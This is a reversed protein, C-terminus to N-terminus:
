PSETFSQSQICTAISAVGEVIRPGLRSVTDASITFLRQSRVAPVSPYRSWFRIMSKHDTSDPQDEPEIIIDPAAAILEESGIPPYEYITPGIANIGGALRILEDIFTATGAVRLPERQVVWLIKPRRNAPASSITMLLHQIDHILARGQEIRQTASAIADIASDLQELTNMPLTLCSCGTSKLRHIIPQHQPIDLAVLIDPRAALIAEVDPEWFTGIRTRSLAAPPYNCQLTVGAIHDDLGLTYLIETLNPALSVIRPRTASQTPVPNRGCSAAFLGTLGIWLIVFADRSLDDTHFPNGTIM